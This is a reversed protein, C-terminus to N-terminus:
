VRERCSARGIKVPITKNRVFHFMVTVLGALIVISFAVSWLSDLIVSFGGVGAGFFMLGIIWQWWPALPKLDAAIGATSSVDPDHADGM